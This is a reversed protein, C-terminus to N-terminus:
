VCGRRRGGRVTRRGFGCFWALSGLLLTATAPEPTPVTQGQALTAFNSDYIVFPQAGPTGTGLWVFTVTFTNLLSPNGVQAQADYLGNSNLALDPQLTLVSWDGNVFSAPSQLSAFLSRDFAISFGQNAALPLDAVTYTYQWLDRGPTIDALDVVAFSIKANFVTTPEAAGGASIGSVIRVVAAARSEPLAAGFLLWLSFAFVVPFGIPRLVRLRASLSFGPRHNFLWRQKTTPPTLM